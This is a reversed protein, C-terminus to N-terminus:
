DKCPSLDRPGRALRKRIRAQEQADQARMKEEQIQIREEIYQSSNNLLDSLDSYNYDTLPLLGLSDSDLDAGPVYDRLHHPTTRTRTSMRTAPTSTAMTTTPSPPSDPWGPPPRKKKETPGDRPGNHPLYRVCGAQDYVVHGRDDRMAVPTWGSAEGGDEPGQRADGEM